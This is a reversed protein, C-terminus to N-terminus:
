ELFLGATLLGQTFLPELVVPSCTVCIAGYLVEFCFGCGPCLGVVRVHVRGDM